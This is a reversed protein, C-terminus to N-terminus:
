DANGGGDLGIAAGGAEALRSEEEESRLVDGVDFREEGLNSFTRPITVSIMSTGVDRSGMVSSQVSVSGPALGTEFDAEFEESGPDECSEKAM